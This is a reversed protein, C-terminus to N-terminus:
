KLLAHGTVASHLFARAAHVGAEAGGRVGVGLQRPVLDANIIKEFCKVFSYFPLPSPIGM